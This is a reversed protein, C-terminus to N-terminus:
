PTQEHLEAGGARREYTGGEGCSAHLHQLRLTFLVISFDAKKMLALHRVVLVINESVVAPWKFETLWRFFFLPPNRTEFNAM